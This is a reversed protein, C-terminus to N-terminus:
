HKAILGKVNCFLEKGIGIDTYLGHLHMLHRLTKHIQKHPLVGSKAHCEISWAPVFWLTLHGCINYSM